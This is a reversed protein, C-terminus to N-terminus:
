VAFRVARELLQDVVFGFFEHNPNKSEGSLYRAYSGELVIGLKWAAFAQYWQFNSLDRGTAAAYRNILVAPSQCYEAAMGGEGGPAAIAILNGEEPWFIMAWALDILPDGVTTMEFDVLSLIRPPLAKSFMANDTKYDGHMVTLEGEAPRNRELWGAVEDVGPLERSRYGELQQLWREVQRELFHEPNALQEIASGRWDFAHLEVLADVLEEGITAQSEPSDIYQYPLKRRIVEGEIFRMVYFPAGMVESDDCAALLEPVRAGSGTLADIVQFERVVNHATDSVAALPARRIAFRDTGQAMEFMECSGGGKMRTVIVEGTRGTESNLWDTFGGLDFDLESM